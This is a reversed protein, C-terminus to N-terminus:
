NRNNCAGTTNAREQGMEMVNWTYSGKGGAFM